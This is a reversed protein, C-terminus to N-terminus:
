ECVLRWGGNFKAIAFAAAQASRAATRCIGDEKTQHQRHDALICEIERDCLAPFRATGAQSSPAGRTAACASAASAAALERPLAARVL